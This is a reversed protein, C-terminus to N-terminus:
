RSINYVSLFSGKWSNFGVENTSSTRFQVEFALASRRTGESPFLSILMHGDKIYYLIFRIYRYIVSFSARIIACTNPFIIILVWLISWRIAPQLASIPLIICSITQSILYFHGLMFGIYGLTSFPNHFFRCKEILYGLLLLPICLPDKSSSPLLLPFHLSHSGPGNLFFLLLLFFLNLYFPRM